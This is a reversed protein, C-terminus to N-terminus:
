LTGKKKSSCFSAWEAMLAVRKNFLEGRRYAAEVQNSVAHALAMETAQHSHSTEESAWDKFTSRFGHVTVIRHQRKPDTFGQGEANTDALHLRKIVASLTMDSLPTHKSSPFLLATGAVKPLAKLLGIADDSLPVRHERKLKMHDAPCTWIRADLDIEHWTAARVTGSRSATLICFELARAGFGDAQRLATMFDSIRAYPLAPHHKVPAIKEPAPLRLDLNDNWAAPNLGKDRWGSQMAFSLVKEIRGRVRSATENKTRWIPQLVTFIDEDTIEGVLKKGIYPSVYKKLTSIWQALHKANTFEDGKAELFRRAAEDFTIARQQARQLAERQQRREQMPDVGNRISAKAERARQISEALSVAPYGGLGLERRRKGVVVRLLWQGVGQQSINIQLGPVTGVAYRGPLKLQKIELATMPKALKPM